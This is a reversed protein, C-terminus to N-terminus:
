TKIAQSLMAALLRGGTPPAEPAAPPPPSAKQQKREAQAALRQAKREADASARAQRLVQEQRRDVEIEHLISRRQRRQRRLRRTHPNMSLDELHHHRHLDSVSDWGPRLLSPQHAKASCANRGM